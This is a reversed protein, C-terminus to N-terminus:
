GVLDALLREQHRYMAIHGDGRCRHVVSDPIREALYEAHHFPVLLDQDGHWLTVPAKIEPLGFGWPRVFAVEDAVMGLWGQRLADAFGPGLAEGLGPIAGLATLEEAPLDAALNGAALLGELRSPDEAACAFERVNSAYMGEFAGPRDLPGLGCSIAVATVREPFAFATALAFPGGGSMGDVAFRGAGLEDALRGADAAVDLLTRNALPSSWGYGPRDFTILRIGLRTIVEDDPFPELRSGPTSHFRLVPTGHRDGREEFALQRGDGLEIVRVDQQRRIPQGM